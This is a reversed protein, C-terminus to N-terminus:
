GAPSPSPAPARGAGGPERAPIRVIFTSGKQPVSEVEIEGGLMRTLNRVVNLGLGTGGVSRTRAAEVQRFPEFIEEMRDPPIGIGTDRVRLVLTDEERATDVQVTGEDTFKVANVLLHLLIQRVMRGDTVVRVPHPPREVVLTLGAREAIPRAVTLVDDLIEGVEAEVFRVEAQRTDTSVFLLIQDILDLLSDANRVIGEVYGLASGPLEGAVGELLLGAYGSIGALPTRLEHSIIALFDSKAQSAQEMLGYLRENEAREEVAEAEAREARAGSAALREELRAVRRRLRALEADDDRGDREHRGGGPGDGTRTEPM